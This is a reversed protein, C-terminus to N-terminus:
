TRWLRQRSDYLYSDAIMGRSSKRYGEDWEGMGWSPHMHEVVSEPCSMFVGRAKATEVLETDTYNHEYEECQVIGPPQGAVGGVEDIYRRDILYATAHLGDLVTPNHLDNTGIVRLHPYARQMGLAAEDWGDSFHLDDAATFLHTFGMAASAQYGHNIAGAWNHKRTNICRGALGTLDRVETWSAVDEEETVFLTFVPSSSADRINEALPRMKHPRGLTPVIVLIATV